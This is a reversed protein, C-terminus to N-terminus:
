AGTGGCFRPRLSWAIVACCRPYRRLLAAFLARDAWYLRPRLNTRRLVAVEHRLVLLEVDKSSSTRGLLTLWGLLQIFILYLLRFSV